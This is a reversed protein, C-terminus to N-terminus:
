PAKGFYLAVGTDREHFLSRWIIAKSEDVRLGNFYHLILRVCGLDDIDYISWHFTLVAEERGAM